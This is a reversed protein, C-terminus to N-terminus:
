RRMMSRREVRLGRWLAFVIVGPPRETREDSRRIEERQHVPYRDCDFRLLEHSFWTCAALFGFPFHTKSPIWEFRKNVALGHYGVLLGRVIRFVRDIWKKAISERSHSDEM